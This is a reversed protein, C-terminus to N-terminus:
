LNVYNTNPESKMMNNWFSFFSPVTKAKITGYKEYRARRVLAGESSAPSVLVVLASFTSIM